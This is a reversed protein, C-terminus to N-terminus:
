FLQFKKAACLQYLVPASCPLVMSNAVSTESSATMLRRPAVGAPRGSTAAAVASGGGRHFVAVASSIAAALASGRTDSVACLHRGWPLRGAPASGLARMFASGCVGARGCPLKRTTPTVPFVLLQRPHGVPHDDATGSSVAVLAFPAVEVPTARVSRWLWRGRHLGGSGRAAGDLLPTAPENATGQRLRVM